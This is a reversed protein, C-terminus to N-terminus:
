RQEDLEQVRQTFRNLVKLAFRFEAVTMSQSLSASISAPENTSLWAFAIKAKGKKVPVVAVVSGRTTGQPADHLTVTICEDVLGADSSRAVGPYDAVRSCIQAPSPFLWVAQPLTLLLDGKQVLGDKILAFGEPAFLGPVEAIAPATASPLVQEPSFAFADKSKDPMAAKM